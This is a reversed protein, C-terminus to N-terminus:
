THPFRYHPSLTACGDVSGLEASSSMTFGRGGGEAGEARSFRAATLGGRGGGEARSFRAAAASRSFFRAAKNADILAGAGWAGSVGLRLVLDDSRPLDLSVGRLALYMARLASFSVDEVAGGTSSSPPTFHSAEEDDEDLREDRAEDPPSWAISFLCATAIAPTAAAATATGRSPGGLSISTEGGVTAWTM